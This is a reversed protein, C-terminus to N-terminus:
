LHESYREFEFHLHAFQRAHTRIAKIAKEVKALEKGIVTLQVSARQELPDSLYASTTLNKVMFCLAFSVLEEVRAVDSLLLFFCFM